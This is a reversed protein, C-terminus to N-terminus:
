AFTLQSSLLEVTGLKLSSLTAQSNRATDNSFTIFATSYQLSTVEAAPASPIVPWGSRSADTIVACPGIGKSTAGAPCIIPIVAVINTTPLNIGFSACTPVTGTPNPTRVCATYQDALGTKAIISAALATAALQQKTTSNTGASATVPGNTIVVPAGPAGVEVKSITLSNSGASADITVTGYAAQSNTPTSFRPYKFSGVYKAQCNTLATSDCWRVKAPFPYNAPPTAGVTVTQCNTLNADTCYEAVMVSYYYPNATFSVPTYLADNPYSYTASNTMCNANNTDCWKLDPFGTVLNTSSATNGLLNTDNIGFADTTVSTWTSTVTQDLNPYFSGDAKVPPSYLVAPNYYQKNFDPSNFPPHGVACARTGGSMTARSRCTSSDDVYDPTFMSTMSGSNDYLLMLNPKVAGTGTINLLPLQAISTMGAFSPAAALMLAILSLLRKM